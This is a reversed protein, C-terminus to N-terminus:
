RTVDIVRFIQVDERDYILEFKSPLAEFETYDLYAPRNGIYIHTVNFEHLVPYLAEADQEQSLRHARSNVFNIYPIEGDSGYPEPPLITERDALYPIWYGADLGHVLDPTWFHTSTYFLADETINEEIWTMAQLDPERVFGNEPLTLDRIFLIGPLSILILLVIAATSVRVKYNDMRPWKEQIVRLIEAIFYGALLAVPFYIWITVILVSFLSPIGILNTQALMLISITGVLMYIGGMEKRRFSLLLGLGALVWFEWRIGFEILYDLDWEYYGGFESRQYRVLLMGVLKEGFVKGFNIIWSLEIAVTVILIIAFTLILDKRISPNRWEQILKYLFYIGVFVLLFITMRNHVMFMGAVAIAAPGIVRLSKRHQDFAVMCLLLAIPFLIQGTLQTYRGWNVFFAPMHSFLGLLLAAILGAERSKWLRKAFVYTTPVVLANIIQGVLVVSRPIPLKTLIHFWAVLTHFGFHYSFAEIPAYPEYSSPVLGGDAILQSILTHHYSDTWLPFEIGEVGWIRAIVAGAFIISLLLLTLLQSRSNILERLRHRKIIDWASIGAALVLLLAVLPTTLHIGLLSAWYLMLPVIAISLGISICIRDTFDFRPQPNFIALVAYGPFVFIAIGILIFFLSSIMMPFPDAFAM